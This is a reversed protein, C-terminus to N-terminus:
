AQMAVVSVGEADGLRGQSRGWGLVLDFFL